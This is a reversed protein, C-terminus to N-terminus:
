LRLTASLAVQRDNLWQSQPLTPAGYDSQRMTRLLNTGEIALTVRDAIRVRLSADLWPYARTYIPLSGIGVLNTVGSLYKDRWNYAIRASVQELEYMGILNASWRSLNQLPVHDGLFPDHTASDVYTANAQLGLGRLRGPLFDFFQQYGAEVGRIRATNMNHPRSVQYAVGDYVEPSSVTGVFGDVKKVFCTAYAATSGAFYREIAVDLNDSRIPQLDPNGASGQNLAPEVPNRILTLSPSLQNFDPRTVTKSAAARLLLGQALTWRANASPLLDTYASSIALPVVSGSVTGSRVGSVSEDTRVARLGINGDLPASPTGLVAMLYAADTKEDIHWVGLPAGAAPIPTTIGFANRLVTPDRALDLSNVLFTRISPAGTGEFFDNYPNPIVFQPRDSASVGSVATDAFILGPADSAGRHALRAGAQLSGIPHDPGFLPREVDLRVVNLGGDFPRTRYAISVYRFNRPDLLNTGGVRTGPVDTGLNQSFTVATGDMVPGSFFLTNRSDAHSLDAKITLADGSWTAGIAAQRDRDSTDRAFSLISIPANTWTITRLDNTGPFLAASGAVFTGSALVNIQQSDQRTKFQAFDGEAMVELRASPRWQLIATGGNRERDGVSTTETTGNRAVVTLGPILDTRAVPNGASKQDERFRRIQHAVSLLAGFEGFPTDWRQSALGSYQPASSHVLDGHVTRVSAIFEHGEFDFPRRTRLDVLGGVGGEIQAASSTKYVTISSVMEAPIDAFDLTRGTGATFVERGNLTTEMQTLGRVTVATGDGRDRAIQVGTIRQLADTVSFDPLKEIDDAAVADVIQSSDRKAAQATAVSARLGVVVVPEGTRQAEIDQNIGSSDQAAALPLHVISWACAAIPLLSKRKGRASLDARTVSVM